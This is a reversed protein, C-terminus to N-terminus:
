THLRNVQKLHTWGVLAVGEPLCIGGSRGFLLFTVTLPETTSVFREKAGKLTEATIYLHWLRWAWSIIEVAVCFCM